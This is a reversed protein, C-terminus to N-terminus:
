KKKEVKKLDMHCEPCTGPKDSAPVCKMPCEYMAKPAKCSTSSCSDGCKQKAEKAKVAACGSKACEETCKHNEEAHKAQVATCGDTKCEDTCVHSETPPCCPDAKAPKEQAFLSTSLIVAFFLISVTKTLNIAKM